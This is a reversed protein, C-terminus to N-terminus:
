PRVASVIQVEPALSRCRVDTLGAGRMWGEYDELAYSAGGETHLLMNVAFLPAFESHGLVMDLVILAGGRALREALRRFLRANAEPDYMHAINSLLILGFEEEPLESQFDGAHLELGEVEALGYAPEVHALVEPRDLLVARLGRAAFARAFTGPGGGVDLVSRAGPVRGLAADVVAEVLDPEKANMAAMFRALEEPDAPAGRTPGGKEAPPGGERLARGLEECWLRISALWRRTVIAEYDPADADVMRARAEGTLRYGEPDLRVAGLAELAGLLIRAGRPALGCAEALADTSLPGAALQAFVGAEQAEAVVLAWEAGRRWEKLRGMGPQPPNM